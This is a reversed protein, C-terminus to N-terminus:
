STSCHARRDDFLEVRVDDNGGITTGSLPPRRASCIAFLTGVLTLIRYIIYVLVQTFGYISLEIRIHLATARVIFAHVFPGAPLITSVAKLAKTGGM